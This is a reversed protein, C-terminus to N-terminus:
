AFSPVPGQGIEERISTMAYESALHVLSGWAAMLMATRTRGTALFAMAGSVLGNMVVPERVVASTIRSSLTM